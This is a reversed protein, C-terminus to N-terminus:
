DDRPSVQQTVNGAFSILCVGCHLLGPWVRQQWVWGSEERENADWRILENELWGRNDPALRPSLCAARVERFLAPGRSEGGFVVNRELRPLRKSPKWSSLCDHTRARPHNSPDRLLHTRRGQLYMLFPFSCGFSSSSIFLLLIYCLANCGRTLRPM